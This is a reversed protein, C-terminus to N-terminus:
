LTVPVYKCNDSSVLRASFWSDTVSAYSCLQFIFAFKEATSALVSIRSDSVRGILLLAKCDRVNCSIPM